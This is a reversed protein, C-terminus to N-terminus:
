CNQNIYVTIEQMYKLLQIESQAFLFIDGVTDIQAVLYIFIFATLEGTVLLSQSFSQCM